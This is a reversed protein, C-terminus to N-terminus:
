QKQHVANKVDQVKALGFCFESFHILPLLATKKTNTLNKKNAKIECQGYYWKM